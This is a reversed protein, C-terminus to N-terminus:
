SHSTPPVTNPKGTPASTPKGSASGSQGAGAPPGTPHDSRADSAHERAGSSHAESVTKGNTKAFASVCQGIGHTPAQKCLNVQTVVAQGWNAPNASGTVAAETAAGAAGVALLAVALGAAGKTSVLTAVKVLVSMHPGGQLHAAHYQAQAPAPSPGGVKAAAQHLQQELWRDFGNGSEVSM